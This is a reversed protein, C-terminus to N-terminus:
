LKVNVYVYLKFYMCYERNLHDPENLEEIINQAFEFDNDVDLKLKVIQCCYIQIMHRDRSPDGPYKGTKRQIIRNFYFFFM